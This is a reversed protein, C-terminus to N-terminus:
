RAPVPAFLAAAMRGLEDSCKAGRGCGAVAIAVRDNLHRIAPRDKATFTTVCAETHMAKIRLGPMRGLIHAHLDAGVQRSGASRFWAKIDDTTALTMDVPDGGLKLCTKGDPYRIPPLLYPDRGDAAQYVLSPMGALRTVEADDLEFFAVTRAYVRIPLPQPLVMNSFAGAAVLVRDATVLGVSTKVGVDALGLAEAVVVEAGARQALIGQTRVLNRPSLHGAGTPEHFALVDDEFRFYPFRRALAAGELRDAAIGETAQVGAVSRMLAGTAPGAMMAGTDSFFSVGSDAELTRYRAISARSVRSWFVDADLARTIRGEDYHSAFVGPHAARDSPEDPGIMVVDHGALALYKAAASGILGRGVVAIRM